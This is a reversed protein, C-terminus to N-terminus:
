GLRRTSTRIVERTAGEVGLGSTNKYVLLRTQIAENRGAVGAPAPEDPPPADEGLLQTILASRKEDLVSRPPITRHARCRPCLFMM